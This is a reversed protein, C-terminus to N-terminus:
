VIDIRQIGKLSNLALIDICRKIIKVHPNGYTDKVRVRMNITGYTNVVRVTVNSTKEKILFINKVFFLYDGLNISSASQWLLAMDVFIQQGVTQWCFNEVLLVSVVLLLRSLEFRLMKVWKERRIILVVTSIGNGLM